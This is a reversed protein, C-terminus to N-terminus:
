SIDLLILTHLPLLVEQKLKNKSTLFLLDTQVWFMELGQQLLNQGTVKLMNYLSFLYNLPEKSAGMVNTPNVAKDTSIMVFRNVKYRSSLVAINKSGLVNVRIAENPNDEVLPVHKYAAAHYVMSFNYTQFLPEVRHINSVDALVFKFRIHPFKEKM